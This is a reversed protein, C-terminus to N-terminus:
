GKDLALQDEQLQGQTITNAQFLIQTKGQLYVEHNKLLKCQSISSM